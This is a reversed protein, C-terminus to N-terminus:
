ARRRDREVREHEVPEVGVWEVWEAVRPRGGQRWALTPTQMTGLPCIRHVGTTVLMDTIAAAREAGVAMGVAELHHRHPALATVLDTVSRIVKLRICRNLCSPLFEADPEISITWDTSENSTLLTRTTCWETAQRFRLVAAKEDFSLTRAPLERASNALADALLAAFQDPTVTGDSEIYCLQPSLCGHQDWLAVDYALRLALDHAAAANGLCERGIVAFSVKHGHAIFRGPVRKAIAAIAADSGSAVVLDAMSFAVEEMAAEGGRWHTVVLCQALEPDVDRISAAFLMPFRRDGTASKILVASKLALSLVIPAAALGPINGSLVHAILGPGIARRGVHVEDVVRQDGLESEMLVRVAEARLPELLLPLGHHIMEPSFGTTAPLVQQARQRWESDPQLWKVIVQDLAALVEEVPRGRLRAAALRAADIAVRLEPPSLELPEATTDHVAVLTGYRRVQAAGVRSGDVGAARSAPRPLGPPGCM